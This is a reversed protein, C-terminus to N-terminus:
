LSISPFWIINGDVRTIFDKLSIYIAQGEKTLEFWWMMLLRKADWVRKAARATSDLPSSLSSSATCSTGTDSSLYAISEGHQRRQASEFESCLCSFLVGGGGFSVFVAIFFAALAARRSFSFCTSAVCSSVGNGTGVESTADDGSVLLIWSVGTESTALLVSDMTGTVTTSSVVSEEWTSLSTETACFTASVELTGWDGRGGTAEIGGFSCEVRCKSWTSVTGVFEGGTGETTLVSETPCLLIKGGEESASIALFRCFMKVRVRQVNMIINPNMPSHSLAFHRCCTKHEFCHNPRKSM